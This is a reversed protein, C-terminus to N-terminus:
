LPMRLVYHRGNSDEKITKNIFLELNEKPNEVQHFYKHHFKRHCNECLCICKAVENIIEEKSHKGLQGGGVCFSKDSPYVHHFVICEKATEGCCACPTKFQGLFDDRRHQYANRYYSKSRQREDERYSDSSNERRRKKYNRNYENTCNRCWINSNGGSARNKDTLVCGCIHCHFHDHIDVTM